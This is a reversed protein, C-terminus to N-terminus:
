MSKFGINATAFGSAKRNTKILLIRGCVLSMRVSSYRPVCCSVAALQGGFVGLTNGLVKTM